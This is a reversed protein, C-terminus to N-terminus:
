HPPPHISSPKTTLPNPRYHSFEGASNIGPRGTRKWTATKTPHISPVALRATECRPHSPTQPIPAAAVQTQNNPISTPAQNTTTTTAPQHWQINFSLLLSNLRLNHSQLQTFPNYAAKCAVNTNTTHQTAPVITVINHYIHNPNIERQSRPTGDSSSHRTRNTTFSSLVASNFQLDLSM